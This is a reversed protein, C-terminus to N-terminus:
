SPLLVSTLNALKAIALITQPINKFTITQNALKAHKLWELLLALGASNCQSVESLDFHIEQHPTLLALSNVWLSMVTTFNLEGSIIFVENRKTITAPM